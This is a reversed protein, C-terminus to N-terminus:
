TATLIVATVGKEKLYDAIESGIQRMRPINGANGTTVCYEQYLKAFMGSKELTCMADFPVNRDPDENAWSSVYGGHWSEFEGKKLDNGKLPYHFWKSANQTELHDPNGVPVIGGETVLAITASSLDELPSPPVVRDFAPVKLETRFAKGEVRALAMEIARTAASKKSLTNRRIGRPLYGEEIAPGLAVGTGLDIALRALVPLAKSMGSTTRGTPVIYIFKQYMEVGPNDQCLATVGPISLQEHATKLILGCALGYRGANFAPGAIIVDPRIEKLKQIGSEIYKDSHENAYNDGAYLTAVIEGSDKLEKQLAVGPGVPGNIVALPVDAKEEGGIGAFFQNLYHVIRVM